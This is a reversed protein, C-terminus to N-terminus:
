LGNHHTDGLAWRRETLGAQRSVVLMKIRLHQEM